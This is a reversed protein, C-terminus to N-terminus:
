AWSRARFAPGRALLRVTARVFAPGKADLMMPRGAHESATMGCCCARENAGAALLVSTTALQGYKAARHLTLCGDFGSRAWHELKDEGEVVLLMQLIRAHGKAAATAIAYPIMVSTRIPKLCEDVQMRVVDGVGEGAAAPADSRIAQNKVGASLLRSVANKHGGNVAFFLPTAYDHATQYLTTPAKSLLMDIVDHHGRHAAWHLATWGEEDILAPDAGKELLERAEATGVALTTRCAAMLPTVGKENPCNPDAGARLLERLIVTKGNQAAFHIARDGKTTMHGGASDRIDHLSGADVNAGGKILLKTIDLKGTGAAFGLPRLGLEDSGEIRAGAALLAEVDRKTGNQISWNLVSDLIAARSDAADAM